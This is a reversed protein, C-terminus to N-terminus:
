EYKGGQEWPLIKIVLRLRSVHLCERCNQWTASMLGSSALSRNRSIARRSFVASISASAMVITFNAMGDNNLPDIRQSNNNLFESVKHQGHDLSSGVDERRFTVYAEIKLHVLFTTTFKQLFVTMKFLLRVLVFPRNVGGPLETEVPQPRM